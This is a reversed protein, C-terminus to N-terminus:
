GAMRAVDGGRGCGYDFFTTGAPFLGDELGLRVPKSLDTREIATRHREVGANAPYRPAV